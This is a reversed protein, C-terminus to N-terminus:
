RQDSSTPTNSCANEYWYKWEFRNNRIRGVCVGNKDYVLVLEGPKYHQTSPSPNLNPSDAYNSLHKESYSTYAGAASAVDLTEQKENIGDRITQQTEQLAIRKEEVRARSVVSNIANSTGTFILPAVPVLLIVLGSASAIKSIGYM